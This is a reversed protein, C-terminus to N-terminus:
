ENENSYIQKAQPKKIRESAANTKKQPKGVIVQSVSSIKDQTGANTTM